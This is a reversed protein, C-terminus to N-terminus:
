DAFRIMAGVPEDGLLRLVFSGLKEVEALRKERTSGYSILNLERLIRANLKLTSLPIEREESLDKLLSTLSRRQSAVSALILLQNENLTRLILRRLDNVGGTSIPTSVCGGGAGIFLSCINKLISSVSVEM